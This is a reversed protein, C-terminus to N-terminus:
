IVLGEMSIAKGNPKYTGFLDLTVKGDQGFNYASVKELKFRPEWKDLAEAIAAYFEVLSEGNAPRDILDFCRSGYDRRQVRTGIPTTLIDTISQWLHNQGDLWKGTQLNM